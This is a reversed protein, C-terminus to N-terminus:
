TGDKSMRRAAEGLQKVVDAVAKKSPIAIGRRLQGADARDVQLDACAPAFLTRVANSDPDVHACWLREGRM